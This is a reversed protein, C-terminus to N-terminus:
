LVFLLMIGYCRPCDEHSLQHPPGQLSQSWQCYDKGKKIVQLGLAELLSLPYGCGGADYHWRVSACNVSAVMNGTLRLSFFDQYEGATQTMLVSVLQPTCPKLQLSVCVLCLLWPKNGLCIHM